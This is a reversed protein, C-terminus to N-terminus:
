CLGPPPCQVRAGNSLVSPLPGTRVVPPCLRAVLGYPKERPSCGPSRVRSTAAPHFLGALCASSSAPSPPPFRSPPVFAPRSARPHPSRLSVDRHPFSAWPLHGARGPPRHSSLSQLSAFRVLPHVWQALRPPHRRSSSRSPPDSVVFAP